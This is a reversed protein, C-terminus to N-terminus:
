LSDFEKQLERLTVRIWTKLMEIMDSSLEIPIRTNSRGEMEELDLHEIILIPETTVMKPEYNPSDVDDSFGTADFAFLGAAYELKEIKNLLLKAKLFTEKEM